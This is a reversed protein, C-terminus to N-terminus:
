LFIILCELLVLSLLGHVSLFFFVSELRVIITWDSIVINKAIQNQKELSKSHIDKHSNNKILGKKNKWNQIIM